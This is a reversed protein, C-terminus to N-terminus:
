NLSNSSNNDSDRFQCPQICKYAKNGFRSHYWCVGNMGNRFNNRGRSTSRNRSLNRERSNRRSRIESIELSMKNLSQCLNSTLQTLDHISRELHNESHQQVASIQPRSCVEFLKDALAIKEDISQSGCATLHIQIQSPLKRLWLKYLLDRSITSEPGALVQMEHFLQAPKRDGLKSNSFINELRAEESLSLRECLAKKLHEYKNSTPPNQICDLVKCIIDQPLSVLVQNYKITEDTVENLTFQVEAHIFWADPYESWFTPLKFSRNASMTHPVQNTITSQTNTNTNPTVLSETSSSPGNVPVNMTNDLATENITSSRTLVM